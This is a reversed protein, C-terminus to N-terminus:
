THLVGEASLNKRIMEMLEPLGIGSKASMYIRDTGVHPIPLDEVLDAKNCVYLIPIHDAHIEELTKATVAIQHEYSPDACDVVELLLDAQQVEELTSRFADVLTHPLDDIFGVTDSLLFADEGYGIRRVATDLTAFLKDQALVEKQSSSRGYRSLLANMLTSKGANTYGVLSVRPIDASQRRSRQTSRERSVAKLQQRILSIQREIRRRDLEIQQEGAGKNSLRGSGGGQRSLNTRMGALRPLIYSLRASEVQLRAERTRAHQAFIQLIVGTRDLVETDLEKELNETQMPSLEENVLIIDPEEMEAATKMQAVKGSGLYTRRTVKDTSQIFTDIVTFGLTEALAGLERISLDYEVRTKKSGTLHLGALFAKRTNNTPRLDYM